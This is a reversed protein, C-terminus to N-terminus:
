ELGLANIRNRNHIDDVIIQVSAIPNVFSNRSGKLGDAATCNLGKVNLASEDMQLEEFKVTVAFAKSLLTIINGQLYIHARCSAKRRIHHVKGVTGINVTDPCLHHSTVFAELSISILVVTGIGAAPEVMIIGVGMMLHQCFIAAGNHHAVIHWGYEGAGKSVIEVKGAEVALLLAAGAVAVQHGHQGAADHARNAMRLGHM